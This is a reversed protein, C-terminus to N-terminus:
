IFLIDFQAGVVAGTPLHFTSAKRDDCLLITRLLNFPMLSSVICCCVRYSSVCIFYYYPHSHTFCDFLFDIANINKIPVPHPLSIIWMSHFYHTASMERIAFLGRYASRAVAHTWKRTENACGGRVRNHHISILYKDVLYTHSFVDINFENWASRFFFFLFVFLPSFDAVALIARM